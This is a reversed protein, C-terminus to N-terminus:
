SAQERAIARWGIDRRCFGDPWNIKDVAEYARKQAQSVNNGLATVGLVRGGIAKIDAGDLKTGAHFIMINESEAAKDLNKIVTDKKYTAPYGNAAMVVCLAAYNGLKVNLSSVDGKAAKYFIDVLDSELRAMLVQTEPDGFRVNIELLEAGKKTVMIGAFITGKFPAGESAMGHMLRDIINEKIERELADTMVPAPSYTGMGGTNPGTDGDGVRKHDQASGFMVANKGDAIAFVSIEEGDLFEEIVVNAGADGFIKKVLMDDLAEVAEEKSFAIVVGKGAALGDAKIVIPLSCNDIYKKALNIDTFEEYAATPINYKKCIYKTFAKSGELRAAEKSPGYVLVGAETLFDAVGEVLPAEPGIVVLEINEKKCFSILDNKNFADVDAFTAIKNIGGNGPTIFIKDCLPSKRMAWVLAHERGGSGIVLINM